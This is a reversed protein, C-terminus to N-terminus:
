IKLVVRGITEGAELALHADGVGDFSAVRDIHARLKGDDVMAAIADLIKFQRLRKGNDRTIQPLGINVFSVDLNKWGALANGGSPWDSVVTNVLRGYPAAHEFSRAFNEHGVFDFM